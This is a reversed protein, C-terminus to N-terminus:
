FLDNKFQVNRHIESSGKKTWNLTGVLESLIEDLMLNDGWDGGDEDNRGFFSFNLLNM